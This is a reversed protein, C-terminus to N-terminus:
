RWDSADAQNMDAVARDFADAEAMSWMGSFKEFHKRNKQRSAPRAGLAEELIRKITRNVSTGDARARQKLLRAVTPDLDHVTFSSM